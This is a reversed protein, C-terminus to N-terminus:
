MASHGLSVISRNYFDHVMDLWITSKLPIHRQVMPRSSTLQALSPTHRRTHISSDTGTDVDRLSIGTSARHGCPKSISFRGIIIVGHADIPDHLMASM